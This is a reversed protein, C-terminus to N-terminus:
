SNYYKCYIKIWEENDRLGLEKLERKSLQLPVNNMLDDYLIRKDRKQIKLNQRIECVEDIDFSEKYRYTDCVDDWFKPNHLIMKGLHTQIFRDKTLAGTFDYFENRVEPSMNQQLQSSYNAGM